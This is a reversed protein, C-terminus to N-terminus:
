LDQFRSTESQMMSDIDLRVANEVMLRGGYGGSGYGGM